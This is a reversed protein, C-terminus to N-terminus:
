DHQPTVAVQPKISQLPTVSNGQKNDMFEKQLFYQLLKANLKCATDSGAQQCQKQYVIMEPLSNLIQMKLDEPSCLDNPQMCSASSCAINEPQSIMSPGGANIIEGVKQKDMYRGHAITDHKLPDSTDMFKMKPKQVNGFMNSHLDTNSSSKVETHKESNNFLSKFMSTNMAQENTKQVKCPAEGKLTQMLKEQFQKIQLQKKFDDVM